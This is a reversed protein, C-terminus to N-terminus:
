IGRVLCRRGAHSHQQVKGLYHRAPEQSAGCLQWHGQRSVPSAGDHATRRGLPATLPTGMWWRCAGRILCAGLPVLRGLHFRGTAEIRGSCGARPRYGTCGSRLGGAGGRWLTHTIQLLRMADGIM